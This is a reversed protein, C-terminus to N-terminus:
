DLIVNWRKVQDGRPIGRNLNFANVQLPTSHKSKSPQFTQGVRVCM